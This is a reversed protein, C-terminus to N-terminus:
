VHKEPNDIAARWSGDISVGLSISLSDEVCKAVHWWRAPIYLWDGAILRASGTPSSEEAFRAFDPLAEPLREHEVTNERFFYDKTGATQVIFVDEDDYHWGFGYTGGPTVFLQIHVEGRFIQAFCASLRALAADHQEARRIVLGIGERMLARTEALNGPTPLGVLKNRGVVLVDAYPHERLLQDLTDGGFLAVANQATSPSAFPKRRLYDRAFVHFPTPHLWEALM